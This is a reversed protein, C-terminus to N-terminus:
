LQASYGEVSWTLELSSTMNEATGSLTHGKVIYYGNISSDESYVYCADMVDILPNGKVEANFTRSQRKMDAFLRDAVAKKAGYASSGYSEDIWEVEVQASRVKGKTAIILEKDVFHETHGHNGLVMLHNRTRTYDISTNLSTLNLTDIFEWKPEAYYMNRTSLLKFTGYRDCFARYMTDGILQQIADSARTGQEFEMSIVYPNKYGELTKVTQITKNVYKKQKSDWVVAQQGGHDIDIYYTEEIVIDPYKLDDEVIRWGTMGALNAINHIISSMVWKTGATSTVNNTTIENVGNVIDKEPYGKKTIFIHNEILSFMDVCEFSVTNSDADDEVEGTIMGTFVRVLDDGYGAYIRVPTGESILHKREGYDIYSFETDHLNRPFGVSHEYTPSYIRDANDLTIRATSSDSDYHNRIEWTVINKELQVTKEFVVDGQEIWDVTRLYKAESSVAVNDIESLKVCMYGIEAKGSSDRVYLDIERENATSTLESTSAASTGNAGTPTGSTIYSIYIPSLTKVGNDASTFEYYTLGDVRLFAKDGPQLNIFLTATFAGNKTFNHKMYISDVDDKGISGPSFGVLNVTQKTVADYTSYYKAAGLGTFKNPLAKVNNKGMCVDFVTIETVTMTTAETGTSASAPATASGELYPRPNMKSAKTFQHSGRYLEFHLHSGDGGKGAIVNGTNGCKAIKQGAAVAQGKSVVISSPRLHSYTTGFGNYHNIHIFWGYSNHYGTAHVVGDYAAVIDWGQCRQGPVLDIGWHDPRGKNESWFLSTVYSRKYGLGSLPFTMKANAINDSKNVIVNELKSENSPVYIEEEGDNFYVDDEWDEPKYMKSTSLPTVTGGCNNNDLALDQIGSGASSCRWKDQGTSILTPTGMESRITDYYQKVRKKWNAGDASWVWKNYGKDGGQHFFDIDDATLYGRTTIASKRSKMAEAIRKALMKAQTTIGKYNFDCAGPCGYGVIFSGNQPRGQGLTGFATEHYAIALMFPYFVNPLCYDKLYTAMACKIYEFRQGSTPNNADYSTPEGLAKMKAVMESANGDTAGSGLGTSPTIADTSITTLKSNYVAELTEYKFKIGPVYVMKDFEILVRPETQGANVRRNLNDLLTQPPTNHDNIFAM